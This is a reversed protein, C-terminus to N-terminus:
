SADGYDVIGLRDASIPLRCAACVSEPMTPSRRRVRRRFRTLDDGEVLQALSLDGNSKVRSAKFHPAVMLGRFHYRLRSQV